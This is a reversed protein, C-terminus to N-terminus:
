NEDVFDGDGDGNQVERMRARTRLMLRISIGILVVTAVLIVCSIPRTFFITLDDNSMSMSQTFSSEMKSGLIFMLIMPVVPWRYKSLFYGVVGFFLTVWVDFLRYNLTYSGVVCLVLIVPGLIGYPVRTLRAWFGVLPLNLCVLLINGIFMSAIVTWVFGDGSSFLTPGPQIGYMQLGVLLMAMTATCPIGFSLLPIFGASGNANNASEPGAVGEIAGHGFEEPHKSLKKELDYSMFTSVTPSCGPLLGLFFGIVSGRLMSGISRRLDSWSPFVRGIEGASVAVQEEELGIIVEKVAVLGIIMSVTEIGGYLSDMGLTFREMGCFPSVGICSLVYGILGVILGKVVSQGTFNIVISMSLLMLAFYEPPGFALSYEAFVPAFFVLGVVGLIGAIFSGIASVGLAVGAKGKQAMPYGDICTVVSSAEGPINLLISTTSGGYQSGYYIGALMIISQSPSLVATLPLLIAISSAPGLGPLVGVLTGILVGVGCMALNPLTMAQVFGDMLMSLTNM